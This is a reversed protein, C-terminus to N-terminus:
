APYNLPIGTWYSVFGSAGEALLQWEYTVLVIYLGLMLYLLVGAPVIGFLKARALVVLVVVGTITLSLKWYAFSHGSGVVLPAMFPNIESAGQRILTLTMLADAVCLLVVLVAAGLWHSDHWDIGAPHADGDRRGGRRRRLYNGKWLGLFTRERRDSGDRRDDLELDTIPSDAQTSIPIGVM